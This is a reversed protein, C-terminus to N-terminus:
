CNVVEHTKRGEKMVVVAEDVLGGEGEDVLGGEREEKWDGGRESRDDRTERKIVSVFHHLRNEAAGRGACRQLGLRKASLKWM